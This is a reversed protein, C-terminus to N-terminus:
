RAHDHYHSCGEGSRDGPRQRDASSGTSTGERPDSRDADGARTLFSGEPVRDGLDKEGQQREPLQYEVLARLGRASQFPGAQRGPDDKSAGAGSQQGSPVAADGM